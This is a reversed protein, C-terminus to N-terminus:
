KLGGDLFKGMLELHHMISLKKITPLGPYTEKEHHEIFKSLAFTKQRENGDNFWNVLKTVAQYFKEAVAGFNDDVSDSVFHCIRMKNNNDFYVIHIAVAWPAFGGEDFM